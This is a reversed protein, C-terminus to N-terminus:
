YDERREAAAASHLHQSSYDNHELKMEGGDNQNDIRDDGQFFPSSV